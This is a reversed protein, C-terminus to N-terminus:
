NSKQYVYGTSPSPLRYVLHTKGSGDVAMSVEHATDSALPVVYTGSTFPVLYKFGPAGLSSGCAVAFHGGGLPVFDGGRSGLPGTNALSNLNWPSTTPKTAIKLSNNTTNKYLIDLTDSDRIRIKAGDSVTVSGDVSEVTWAGGVRVAHRLGPTVTGRDNFAIHPQNLSDFALSLGYGITSDVLSLAVPVVQQVAFDGASYTAYYVTNPSM